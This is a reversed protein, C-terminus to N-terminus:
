VLAYELGTKFSMSNYTPALLLIIIRKMLLYKTVGFIEHISIDIKAFHSFGLRQDWVGM